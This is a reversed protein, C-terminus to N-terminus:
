SQQVSVLYNIHEKESLFLNREANCLKKIVFTNLLLDSFVVFSSIISHFILELVNWRYSRSLFNITFGLLKRSFLFISTPLGM